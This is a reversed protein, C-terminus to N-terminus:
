VDPLVILGDAKYHFVCFPSPGDSKYGKNLGNGYAIVAKEIDDIAHTREARVVEFAKHM